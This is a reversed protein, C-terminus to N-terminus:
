ARCTDAGGAILRTQGSPSLVHGQPAAEIQYETRVTHPHAADPYATTLCFTLRQVAAPVSLLIVKEAVPDAIQSSLDREIPLHDGERTEMRLQADRLTLGPATMYIALNLPLSASTLPALLALSIVGVSEPRLAAQAKRSAADAAAAAQAAAMRDLKQNAADVGVGLVKIDDKIGLLADQLKRLSESQSALAGPGAPHSVSWAAGSFSLLLLVTAFSGMWPRMLFGSVPHREVAASLAPRLRIQLLICAVTLVLAAVTLWPFLHVRPSALDVIGAILANVGLTSSLTIVSNTPLIWHAILQRVKHLPVEEPKLEFYSRRPALATPESESM